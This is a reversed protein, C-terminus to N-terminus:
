ASKRLPRTRKWYFLELANKIAQNVPYRRFGRGPDIGAVRMFMDQYVPIHAVQSLPPGASMCRDAITVADPCHEKIIKCTSFELRGLKGRRASFGFLRCVLFRFEYYACCGHGPTGSDPRYLVCVPDGRLEKGDIADLVTAEKGGRYLEEALPLAEVVTAEVHRSECCVGCGPVCRLGTALQFGAVARGAERFVQMVHSSLDSLDPHM